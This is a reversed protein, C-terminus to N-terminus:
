GAILVRKLENNERDLYAMYYHGDPKLFDALTPEHGEEPILIDGNRQLLEIDAKLQAKKQAEDDSAFIDREHDAKVTVGALTGFEEGLQITLEEVPGPRRSGVEEGTITLRPSLIQRQSFIQTIMEQRKGGNLQQDGELLGEALNRFSVFSGRPANDLQGILLRWGEQGAKKLAVKPSDGQARHEDSIADLLDYFAGTWVRAFSHSERALQDDPVPHEEPDPLTNPDVYNFDNRSDRVAHRGIAPGMEEGLASIINPNSLDGGADRVVTDVTAEDELSMLMSIIDGFAEYYAAAEFSFSSMFNPRIADLIAHGAEHAVIEGSNATSTAVGDSTYQFFFLNGMPRYYFANPFDFPTQEGAHPALGLQEEDFAWQISRGTFEVLKEEFTDITHHANSVANATSYEKTSDDYVFTGNSAAELRLSDDPLFRGQNPLFHYNRLKVHETELKEGVTVEDITITSPELVSSDQPNFSFTQSRGRNAM